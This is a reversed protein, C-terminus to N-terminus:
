ITGVYGSTDQPIATRQVTRTNSANSKNKQNWTRIAAQWDKMKNKGVMWGKAQYFNMFTEADVCYNNELIFDSIDKLSPPTFRMATKGKDKREKKSDSDNKNKSKNKNHETQKASFENAQMQQCNAANAQKALVGKKGAERRRESITEYKEADRDFQSKFPYFAVKVIADAILAEFAGDTDQREDQTTDKVEGCLLSVQYAKIAKFLKGAQADTLADLVGLSDIHIIFSKRDM